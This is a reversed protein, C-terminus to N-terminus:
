VVQVRNMTRDGCVRGPDSAANGNDLDGVKMCQGYMLGKDVFVVGQLGEKGRADPGDAYGHDEHDEEGGDDAAKEGHDHYPAVALLGEFGLLLFRGLPCTEPPALLSSCQSTCLHRSTSLIRDINLQALRSFIM